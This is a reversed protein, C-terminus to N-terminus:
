VKLLCSKYMLWKAKASLSNDASRDCIKRSALLSINFVFLIRMFECHLPSMKPLTIFFNCMGTYKISCRENRVDCIITKAWLVFRSLQLLTVISTQTQQEELISIDFVLTGMASELYEMIKSRDIDEFRVHKDLPPTILDGNMLKETVLFKSIAFTFTLYKWDREYKDPTEAAWNRHCRDFIFTVDYM